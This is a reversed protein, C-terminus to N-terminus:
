SRRALGSVMTLTFAGWLSMAQAACAWPQLALFALAAARASREYVIDVKSPMVWAEGALVEDGHQNVCMTRMRIRQREPIVEVVEM